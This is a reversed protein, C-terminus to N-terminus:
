STPHDPPPEDPLRRVVVPIGLQPTEPEERRPVLRGSRWAVVAAVLAVAAGTVLSWFGPGVAARFDPGTSNPPQFVDLWFLEQVGVTGVTAALFTAGVLATLRSVRALRAASRRAAVLLGLAAALLAAVAFALPVGNILIDSGDAAPIGDFENRFDWSSITVRQRAGPGVAIQATFLQQFMGIMTLMAATLCLLAGLVAVRNGADPESM